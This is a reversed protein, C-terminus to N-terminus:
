CFIANINKHETRNDSTEECNSTKVLVWKDKPLQNCAHTNEESLVVRQGLWAKNECDHHPAPPLWNSGSLGGNKLGVSKKHKYLM